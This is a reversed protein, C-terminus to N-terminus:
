GKGLLIKAVLSWIWVSILKGNKVPVIGHWVVTTSIAPVGCRGMEVAHRPPTSWACAEGYIRHLPRTAPAGSVGAEM